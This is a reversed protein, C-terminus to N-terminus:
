SSEGPKKEPTEAAKKKTGKAEPKPREFFTKIKDGGNDGREKLPSPPPLDVNVV